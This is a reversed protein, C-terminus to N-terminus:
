KGPLHQGTSRRHPQAFAHSCRPEASARRSRQFVRRKLTSRPRLESRVARTLSATRAGLCCERGGCHSTRRLSTPATPFPVAGPEFAKLWRRTAPHVRVAEPRPTIASSKVSEARPKESICRIIEARTPVGLKSMYHYHTSTRYIFFRECKM